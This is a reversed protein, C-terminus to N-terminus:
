RPAEEDVPLGMARRFEVVQEPPVELAASIARITGVRPSRSGGELEVITRTATGAATALSRVTHLRRRRWGRLPMVEREPDGM